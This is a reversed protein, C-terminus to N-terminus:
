AVDRARGLAPRRLVLVGVLFPALMLLYVVKGYALHFFGIAAEPGWHHALVGTGAVRVLNATIGVVVALGLVAARRGTRRQTAWAVATGLVIMALLFRLGNCAETVHLVVGPIHISLGDRTVPIGLVALAHGTFWAALHQLPLSVAPILADPLPAMFALFGLPFVAAAFGRRGLALRAAGALGVPPSLAALTLSSLATGALLLGLGGLLLALGAASWEPAPRSLQRRADWLCWASFIPVLFGYSYYPVTAWVRVLDAVVPGYLVAPLALGAMLLGAQWARRPLRATATALAAWERRGLAGLGLATVGYTALALAGATVLDALRAADPVTLRVALFGLSAAVGIRALDLGPFGCRERRAVAVFALGAATLQAAGNALVAGWAGWAPIAVAAVLVDLSASVATAALAWHRDGTARLATWAVHRLVGVLSIALLPGLLAAVPRYPEGYLLTVLGPAAVAGVVALPGGVLAVWRLAARYVRGFEAHDGRGHLSALAPLLTGAVVEAVVMSRSALGFAVSYFAIETSPAWLRLFVVESRDWVITDLVAVVALPTLYARLEARAPAPIPTSTEPYLRSVQRRELAYSILTGLTGGVVLGLIDAGAAMAAVAALFHLAMKVTSVQATIDYRQAGYAAHAYISELTAPFLGLTLVALPLRLDAPAWGVFLLVLAAVITTTLAQRRLFFRVLAAALAPEGRALAAATYRTTGLAWGLAAVATLTRALWLLYSYDGMRAPGLGRALVVSMALGAVIGAATVLGYWFTNRLITERITM